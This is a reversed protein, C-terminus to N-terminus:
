FGIPLALGITTKSILCDQKINIDTSSRGDSEYLQYFVSPEFEFKGNNYRKYRYGTYISYNRLKNPENIAFIDM